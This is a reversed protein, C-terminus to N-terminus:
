DVVVLQGGGTIMQGCVALTEYAVAKAKCLLV